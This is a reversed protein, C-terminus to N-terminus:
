QPALVSTSQKSEIVGCAIRDGSNGSPQSLLDDPAAHIVFAKGLISNPGEFTAMRDYFDINAIEEASAIINGMDG